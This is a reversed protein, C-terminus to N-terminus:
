NEEVEMYGLDAENVNLNFNGKAADNSNVDM